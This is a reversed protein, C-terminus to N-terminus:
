SPWPDSPIECDDLRLSASRWVSDPIVFEASTRSGGTRLLCAGVTEHYSSPQGLNRGSLVPYAM